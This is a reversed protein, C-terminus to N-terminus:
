LCLSFQYHNQSILNKFASFNNSRPIQESVLFVTPIDCEEHVCVCLAVHDTFGESSNWNSLFQKLEKLGYKFIIAM